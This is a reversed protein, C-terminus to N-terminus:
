QSGQEMTSMGVIVFILEPLHKIPFPIVAQSLLVICCRQRANILLDLDVDLSLLPFGVVHRLSPLSYPGKRANISNHFGDLGFGVEFCPFCSPPFKPLDPVSREVTTM